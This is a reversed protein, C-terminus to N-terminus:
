QADNLEFKASPCFTLIPNNTPVGDQLVQRIQQAIESKSTDFKALLPYVSRVPLFITRFNQVDFPIEEDERILHVTPKGTVHRLCLEYFVNPDHFSMDVVVLKSKLIHEIVQASIMGPKGIKDARILKLGHEALLPEVFSALVADSHQRQESGDDDIPAIFFCIQDFEISKSILPEGGSKPEPRTVTTQPLVGAGGPLEELLQEITLLCAAGERTQLIGVFKANAIFIDVCQPRDGQDVDDLSDRMVEPVPMRGGKFRDYLHLFRDHGKIALDFRASARQRPSVSPDVASTGHKTLRIEKADHAGQTIGYRSSNTILNKTSLNNSLKLKELLTTRQMPHGAGHLMIGEGIKLTEEFTMVPYPKPGRRRHNDSAMSARAIRNHRLRGQKRRPAPSKTTDPAKGGADAEKPAGNPIISDAIKVM